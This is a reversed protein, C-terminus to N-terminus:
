RATYMRKSPKGNFHLLEIHGRAFPKIRGPTPLVSRHVKFAVVSTLHLLFDSLFSMFQKRDSNDVSESIMAELNCRYVVVQPSTGVTSVHSLVPACIVKSSAELAAVVFLENLVVPELLCNTIPVAM